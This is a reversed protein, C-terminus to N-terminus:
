FLKIRFRAQDHRIVVGDQDIEDLLLETQIPDGEHVVRDSIMILRLSPEPSYIHGSLKLEVMKTQFAESM